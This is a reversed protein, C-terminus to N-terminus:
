FTRHVASSCSCWTLLCATARHRMWLQLITHAVKFWWVIELLAMWETTKITWLRRRLMALSEGLLQTKTAISNKLTNHHTERVRSAPWQAAEIWVMKTQTVTWFAMASSPTGWPKSALQVSDQIGLWCQAYWISLPLRQKQCWDNCIQLWKTVLHSLWLVLYTLWVSTKHSMTAKSGVRLYAVLFNQSAISCTLKQHAQFCRTVQTYSLLSAVLQLYM